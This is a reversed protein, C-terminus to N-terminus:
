VDAILVPSVKWLGTDHQPLCSQQPQYTEGEAREDTRHGERIWATQSYLIYSFRETLTLVIFSSM